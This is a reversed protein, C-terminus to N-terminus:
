QMVLKIHAIAQGDCAIRVTYLGPLLAGLYFDSNGPMPPWAAVEQGVRDYLALVLEEDLPYGELRFGVSTPNPFARIATREQHERMGVDLGYLRSVMRQLTDNATGDDYGHYAGWIYWSGDPAPTIGEVGGYTFGQYTYDGCGPGSFYEDLLTGSSDILCIGQRSMGQVLEFAGTVILRSADLPYISRGLVAGYPGTLDLVRFDLHNNFTPDVSGDPMFRVLHLTDPDGTIRFNGSAYVRGDELPLFGFATGWWVNTQFTPDWEGDASFRIVNSGTPEGEWSATNPPNGLCGIFQGNPLETFFDLSGACTRHTKTTDLYGTNSFWVLCYQGEFGRISDSLNHVGSMLIRGDPYVHYDGGQLSSFYPDNNMHIFSPDILCDEDLRRVTQTTAVYYQDNWPTVKGAGTTLPFVPFSLDRSGDALLMASGRFSGGPDGPFRIMGSLFVRGDPLPALSSVYWTNVETRFTTDLDFPQQPRASHGAWMSASLLLLRAFRGGRM